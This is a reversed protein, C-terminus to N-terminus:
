ARGDICCDRGHIRHRLIEGRPQGTHHIDMDRIVNFHANQGEIGRKAWAISFGQIVTYNPRLHFADHVGVDPSQLQAGRGGCLTIPQEPTGSQTMYFRGTYTGDALRIVASRLTTPSSSSATATAM